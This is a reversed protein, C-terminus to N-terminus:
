PKEGLEWWGHGEREGKELSSIGGSSAGVARCLTPAAMFDWAIWPQSFRLAGVYPGPQLKLSPPCPLLLSESEVAM